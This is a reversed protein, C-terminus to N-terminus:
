RWVPKGSKGASSGDVISGSDGGFLSLSQAFAPRAIPARLSGGNALAVSTMTSMRRKKSPTKRPQAYAYAYTGPPPSPRPILSSRRRSKEGRMPGINSRRRAMSPKSVLSTSGGVRRPSGPPTSLGMSEQGFTSRSAKTPSSGNRVLNSPPSNAVDGLPTRGVRTSSSLNKADRSDDEDESVEGLSSMPAVRNTRLYRPDLRSRSRGPETGTTISSSSTSAISVDDTREDEWEAESEVADKPRVADTKTVMVLPIIPATAASSASPVSANATSAPQLGKDDIEGQSTEDRWRVSKKEPARRIAAHASGLKTPRRPSRGSSGNSRRPSNTPRHAMNGLGLSSRRRAASFSARPAARTVVV